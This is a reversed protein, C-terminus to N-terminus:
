VAPVYGAIFVYHAASGGIVFLHWIGHAGVRDPMPDPWEAAYIIAGATYLLGGAVLWAVGQWSFVEFIPKIGVLATWGMALYIGVMAWRPVEIGTSRTVIGVASLGWVIGFITWGWGPPLALLCIPTYTGAIVLFVASQDVRRLIRVGRDSVPLAHYMTSAAFVAVLSAGYVAYATTALASEAQWVLFILGAVAALIGPAHSIANFPERLGM